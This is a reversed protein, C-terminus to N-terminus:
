QLTDITYVTSLAFYHKYGLLNYITHDDPLNIACLLNKDKETGSLISM